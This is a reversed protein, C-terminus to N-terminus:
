VRSSGLGQICTQPKPVTFKYSPRGGANYDLRFLAILRGNTKKEAIERLQGAADYSLARYTGNPRDM